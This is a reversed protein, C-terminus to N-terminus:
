CKPDGSEGLKKGLPGRLDIRLFEPESAAPKGQLVRVLARGYGFFLGLVLMAVASLACFIAISELLTFTKKVEAHFDLPMPKNWTVEEHLHIANIIREAEGTPWTGIALLLLTGERRMKVTRTSAAGVATPGPGTGNLVAEIMRQHEGAIQPTPYLLLTLLGGSANRASVVEASKDFGLLNVPLTGGMATYGQPGLAYRVSSADIGKGPVLTPLMPPVAASGVGKPLYDILESMLIGVHDGHLNFSERVVNVGRRFVIENGVGSATEDGMKAAGLPGPRMFYDFAAVAGSADMFKYVTVTGQEPGDIYQSRAFRRLGDEKMVAADISDVQALGDGADDASVRHMKGLTAPLLPAAPQAQVVNAAAQPPTQAFAIEGRAALCLVVSLAVWSVQPHRSAGTNSRHSSDTM